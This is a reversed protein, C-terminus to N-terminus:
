SAKGYKTVLYQAWTIKGEAHEPTCNYGNRFGTAIKGFLPLRVIRKRKGQAALWAKLIDGLALVEPGGLDPLMGAPGAQIYSVMRDAVEGTDITQFKFDTPALAIPGRVMTKLFGDILTHFQTARLISYAVGVELIVKEAALKAKYYGTPVKDIGVISIYFFHPTAAARAREVLTRTGLVDVKKTDRFPSSACHAIVDVGSIAADVGEGTDLSMTAWEIDAPTSAPRPKRSAIRVTYGAAKLRPVLESGLGGTGGTVLATAM